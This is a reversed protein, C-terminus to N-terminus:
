KSPAALHARNMEIAPNIKRINKTKINKETPLAITMIPKFSKSNFANVPPVEIKTTTKIDASM